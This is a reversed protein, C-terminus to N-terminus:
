DRAQEPARGWRKVHLKRAQAVSAELSTVLSASSEECDDWMDHVLASFLYQKSVFVSEITEDHLSFSLRLPGKTQHFYFMSARDRRECDKLFRQFVSLLPQVQRDWAWPLEFRWGRLGWSKAVARTLGNALRETPAM